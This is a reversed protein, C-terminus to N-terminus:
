RASTDRTARRSKWKLRSHAAGSADPMEIQPTDAAIAVPAAIRARGTTGIMTEESTTSNATTSSTSSGNAAWAKRAWWGSTAPAHIPRATVVSRGATGLPAVGGAG